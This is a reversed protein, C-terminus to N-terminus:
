AGPPAQTPLTTLDTPGYWAVCGSVPATLALLAALHAGASEGWTVMRKTDLGLETARANLWTLAATVDDLQAPYVAEGSLRYDLSVL